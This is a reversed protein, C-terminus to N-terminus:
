RGQATRAGACYASGSPSSFPQNLTVSALRPWRGEEWSEEVGAALFAFLQTRSRTLMRAHLVVREGQECSNTKAHSHKFLGGDQLFLMMLAYRPISGLIKLPGEFSGKSIFDVQHECVTLCGLLTM